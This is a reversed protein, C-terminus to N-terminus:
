LFAPHRKYDNVISKISSEAKPNGTIALPMRSDALVAKLGTMRAAELIKHNRAVSAEGECPPMVITFGADRIRKYQEVTIFADPPGCWFTIPFTKPPWGGSSAEEAQARWGTGAGLAILGAAWLGMKGLRMLTVWIRGQM